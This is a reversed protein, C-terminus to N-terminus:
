KAQLFQEKNYSRRRTVSSGEGQRRGPGGERPSLTFNLLHNLSMKRGKREGEGAREVEEQYQLGSFFSLSPFLM